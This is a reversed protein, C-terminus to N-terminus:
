RSKLADGADMNIVNLLLAALEHYFLCGTFTNHLKIHGELGRKNVINTYRYLLLLILSYKTISYIRSSFFASLSFHLFIRLFVKYYLEDTLKTVM